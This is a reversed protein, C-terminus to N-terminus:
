LVVLEAINELSGLELDVYLLNIMPKVPRWVFRYESQYEYRFHKSMPVDINATAPLHPDVYIAKGHRHGTDPFKAASQLTLLHQFRDKDKIIVCSDAQFDVFLRPEVACSVCYLWYDTGANYTVDLRQLIPGDPVDQPNLVGKIIADRSLALSLPLSLEDDRIAGNHNPTAYYSASQIRLSGKEVLSRMHEAKGFKVFVDGSRLGKSALVGAAKAGVEGAFDPFPESHLIDRTFGNPYPGHRLAMEELVHAWIEMAKAGEPELPPLGIKVDPMLRLMNLFVDRIRQNLEKQSLHRCYRNERYMKRWIEQRPMGTSM